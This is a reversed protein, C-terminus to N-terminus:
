EAFKMKRGKIWGLNIFSDLLTKDIKKNEVNNHIWCTGFQSNKEGLSSEISSLRMKLKTEESHSKGKFTGKNKLKGQSHLNKFHLSKENLFKTRYEPDTQLRIKNLNGAYIGAYVSGGGEILNMCYETDILEPTVLKKEEDKLEERSSCYILIEKVQNNRGHAKISNVLRTGSGMYGDELNNTSHM